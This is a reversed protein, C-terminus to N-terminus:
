LQHRTTVMPNRTTQSCRRFRGPVTTWKRGTVNAMTAFSGEKAIAAYRPDIRPMLRTVNNWSWEFQSSVIDGM